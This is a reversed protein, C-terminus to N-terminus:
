NEICRIANINMSRNFLDKNDLRHSVVIFTKDSFYEFINKLINRELSIDMEGFSEDLLIIDADCLLTRALIIREREGGSLNNGNDTILSKLGIKRKSIIEDVKTISLIKNLINNDIKKDLCINKYLTTSFIKEQQSVYIVRNKLVSPHVKYNNLSLNGSYDDIYGKLYKLLTSKGGGSNGYILIRDKKKILLNNYKLKINDNNITLNDIFITDVNNIYNTNQQYNLDDIRNIIEEFEYIDLKLEFLKKFIDMLYNFIAYYIILYKINLLGVSVLCIGFLIIIALCVDNLFYKINNLFLLNNKLKYYKVNYDNFSDTLDNLIYNELNSGKFTDYSELNEIIKNNLFGNQLKLFEIKTKNKKNIDNVVLYYIILIIFLICTLFISIKILVIFLTIFIFIDFTLFTMLSIIITGIKSTDFIHSAIEGITLNFFYKYPLSIVNDFIKIKYDYNIKNELNNILYDRLISFLIKLLLIIIFIFISVNKNGYLLLIFIFSLSISTIIFLFSFINIIIINKTYKKLFILLYKIFSNSSKYKPITKIPYIELLINNYIKEFDKIKLKKIGYSPDCIIIFNRKLNIEYIVVYHYYNNVITHAVCPLTVNKINHIDCSMGTAKFGLNQSVKVINYASTGNKSCNLMDFLYNYPINGKYYKIIMLLCAVGCDKENHQKIYPYKKIM